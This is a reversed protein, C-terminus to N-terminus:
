DKRTQQILRNRGKGTKHWPRFGSGRRSGWRILNDISRPTLDSVEAAAYQLDHVPHWQDDSLEDLIALYAPKTRPMTMPDYTSFTM